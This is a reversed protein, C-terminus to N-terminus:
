NSEHIIENIHQKVDIKEVLKFNFECKIYRLLIFNKISKKYDWLKKNSWM